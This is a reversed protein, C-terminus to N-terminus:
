RRARRPSAPRIFYDGPRPDVAADRLPSGILTPAAPEATPDAADRLRGGIPTPQTEVPITTPRQDDM